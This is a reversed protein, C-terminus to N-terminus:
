KCAASVVGYSGMKCSFRLPLPKTDTAQLRGGLSFLDNFFAAQPDCSGNSADFRKLIVAADLGLDGRRHFHHGRMDVGIFGSAHVAIGWRGM